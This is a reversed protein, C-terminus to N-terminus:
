RGCCMLLAESIENWDYKLFVCMVSLWGLAIITVITEVEERSFVKKM